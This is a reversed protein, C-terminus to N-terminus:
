VQMEEVGPIADDRDHTVVPIREAAATAAVLLDLIPVRHRDVRLVATMRAFQRAVEADVALPDGSSAVASLTAVRAPRDDDTAMRVGLTPEAPREGAELRRLVDSVAHRLERVSISSAV